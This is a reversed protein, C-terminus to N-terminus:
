GAEGADSLAHRKGALFLLMGISSFATVLFALTHPLTEFIIRLAGVYAAIAGLAFFSARRNRIGLGIVIAAVVCLSLEWFLWARKEEFVGSLLGGLILILGLHAWVPEFHAKWGRRISLTAGVLFLAGCLLANFRLTGASSSFVARMPYDTALGRWAAFTTLAVSLVKKSDFRYAAVLELLSLLLLHYAWSEGLVKFRIEVYALDSGLLLLGLLLVSEFALGPSGAEQWSFPVARRWVWALCLASFLALSLVIALPGIDDIKEKVLLGAGTTMLLVGFSILLRLEVRVTVLERRAVRSFLSASEEDLNGQGKIQGIAEVVEPNM